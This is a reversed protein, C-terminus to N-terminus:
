MKNKIIMNKEICKLAFKQQNKMNEVLYVKGFQGEGLKKLM